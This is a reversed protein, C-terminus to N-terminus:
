IVVFLVNCHTHVEEPQTGESELDSLIADCDGIVSDKDVKVDPPSCEEKNNNLLEKSKMDRIEKM